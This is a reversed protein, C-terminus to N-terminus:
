FLKPERLDRVMRGFQLKEFFRLLATKNPALPRMDDMDMDYDVNKDLRMLGVNRDLIGRGERLGERLREPRVEELKSYINEISDYRNLLRTATKPGIGAIGPINDASDGVLALWDVVQEPRIGMKEHVGNVGIPSDKGSPPCVAIVSSALQLLDKDSTAILVRRAGASEADTAIAAMVDDAEEGDVRVAAIGALGLYESILAMQQRLDDPMPPRQAKYSKLLRMRRDPTGGDFVVVMHEPNFRSRLSDMQRIFGYVANTPLGDSTSLSKIAYFSRYAINHGDCILM